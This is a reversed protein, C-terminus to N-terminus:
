REEGKRIQPLKTPNSEGQIVFGRYEEFLILGDDTHMNIGPGNEKDDWPNYNHTADDEWGDAIDNGNNDLPISIEGSADGKSSTSGSRPDKYNFTASASLIGVAAYDNIRVNVPVSSNDDGTETMGLGIEVNGLTNQKEGLVEIPDTM